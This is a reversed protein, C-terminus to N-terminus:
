RGSSPPVPFERVEFDSLITPCLAPTALSCSEVAVNISSGYTVAPMVQPFIVAGTVRQSGGSGVLSGIVGAPDSVAAVDPTPMSAQEGVPKNGTCKAEQQQWQPVTFFPCVLAIGPGNGTSDFFAFVGETGAPPPTNVVTSTTPAPNFGPAPNSTTTTTATPDPQGPPYVVLEITSQDTRTQVCTWGTPGLVTHTGDSYFEVKGVLATPIPALLITPRWGQNTAPVGFPTVCGVVPFSVAVEGTLPTTTSSDTGSAASGPRPQTTSTSGVIGSLSSGCGAVVVALVVVATLRGIAALGHRSPPHRIPTATTVPGSTLGVDARIPAKGSVRTMPGTLRDPPPRTKECRPRGAVTRSSLMMTDHIVGTSGATWCLCTANCGESRHLVTKSFQAGM